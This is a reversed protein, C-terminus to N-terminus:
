KTIIRWRVGLGYEIEAEYYIKKDKDQIREVNLSILELNYEDLFQRVKNICRLWDLDIFKKIVTNKL